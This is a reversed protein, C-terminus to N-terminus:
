AMPLRLSALCAPCCPCRCQPLPAASCSDAHLAWVQQEPERMLRCCACNASGQLMCLQCVGAAHVTPLSRCATKALAHTMHTFCPSGSCGPLRYQQHLPGGSIMKSVFVVLPAESSSSSAMLHSEVRALEEAAAPPLDSSLAAGQRLALLKPMREPSAAAPSPLHTVAMGLVAESLPLWARLVSRLVQPLLSPTDPPCNAM